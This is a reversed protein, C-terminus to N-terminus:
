LHSNSVSLLQIWFVWFRILTGFVQNFCYCFMWFEHAFFNQFKGWIVWFQSRQLVNFRYWNRLIIWNSTFYKRIGEFFLVLIWFFFVFLNHFIVVFTAWLVISLFITSLSWKLIMHYIKPWKRGGVHFFTFIKLM